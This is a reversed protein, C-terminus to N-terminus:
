GYEAVSAILADDRRITYGRGVVVAVVAEENAPDIHLQPNSPFYEIQEGLDDLDGPLVNLAITAARPPWDEFQYPDYASALLEELEKGDKDEKPDYQEFEEDV